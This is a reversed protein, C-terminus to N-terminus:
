KYKNRKLMLDELLKMHRQRLVEIRMEWNLTNPGDTRISEDRKAVAYQLEGKCCDILDRIFESNERECIKYNYSM